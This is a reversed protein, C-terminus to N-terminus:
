RCMFVTGVPRSVRHALCIYPKMKKGFRVAYPRSDFETVIINALVAIISLDLRGQTVMETVTGSGRLITPPTLPTYNYASRILSDGFAITGLNEVSPTSHGMTWFISAVIIALANELDHLTVNPPSNFYSSDAVYEVGPQLAPWMQLKRVLYQAGVNLFTSEQFITEEFTTQGSDEASFPFGSPPMSLYWQAWTDLLKNGTTTNDVEFDLDTYQEWNSATKKISPVVDLPAKSQADVVATQPVLQQSCILIQVASVSPNFVGSANSFPTLDLMAPHRNNSDVIPTTSFMVLPGPLGQLDTPSGLASIVGWQTSRWSLFTSPLGEVSAVYEGGGYTVNAGRPYRCSINFGTASVTVNGTGANTDLVDYLTAGSVGLSKSSNSGDLVPQLAYLVQGSYGTWDVYEHDWEPPWDPLSQTPVDVLRSSSFTQVAFLAPTSVHLILVSSLSLFIFLVGFFSGRVRTQHWLYFVASGIGAWAATSDHIATLTPTAQLLRRVSITQTVFVILSLYITGFGTTIATIAFSVTKQHDLSFVVQHEAEKSWM